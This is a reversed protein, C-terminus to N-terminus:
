SVICCAGDASPNRETDMEDQQQLHYPLSDIVLRDSSDNDAAAGDNQPVRSTPMTRKINNWEYFDWVKDADKAVSSCRLEQVELKALQLKFAENPNIQPRCSRVYRFAHQLPLRHRVMLHMLLVSVSRSVGALCHLLVRGQVREVHSLFSVVSEM